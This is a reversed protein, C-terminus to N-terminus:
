TVTACGVRSRGRRLACRNAGAPADCPLPVALAWDCQRDQVVSLWGLMVLANTMSVGM